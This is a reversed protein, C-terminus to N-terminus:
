VPVADTSQSGASSVHQTWAHGDHYRLDHRGFPDPRWGQSIVAPTSPKAKAEAPTLPGVWNSGDDWPQDFWSHLDFSSPEASLAYRMSDLESPEDFIMELAGTGGLETSQMRFRRAVALAIRVHRSDDHTWTTHDNGYIAASLVNWVTQAALVDSEDSESALSFEEDCLLHKLGQCMLNAAVKMQEFDDLDSAGYLELGHRWCARDAEPDALQWEALIQATTPGALQRHTPAAHPYTKPHPGTPGPEMFPPADSSVPLPATAATPTQVPLSPRQVPPLTSPTAANVSGASLSASVRRASLPATLGARALRWAKIEGRRNRARASDLASEVVPVAVALFQERKAPDSALDVAKTAADRALRRVGSRVISHSEAGISGGSSGPRSM